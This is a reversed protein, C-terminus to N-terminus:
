TGKQVAEMVGRNTGGGGRTNSPRRAAEPEILKKINRSINIGVLEAITIRATGGTLQHEVAAVTFNM